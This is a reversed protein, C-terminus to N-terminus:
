CIECRANPAPSLLLVSMESSRLPSLNPLGQRRGALISRTSSFVFNLPAVPCLLAPCPPLQAVPFPAPRVARSFALGRSPGRATPAGRVVPTTGAPFSPALLLSPAAADWSVSPGSPQLRDEPARPLPWRVPHRVPSPIAVVRVQILVKVYMLPQSLITLGSGLLVQSAADAMIAGASPCVSRAVLRGLRDRTM